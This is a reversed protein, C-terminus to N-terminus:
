EVLFVFRPVKPLNDDLDILLDNTGRLQITDAILGNAFTGPTGEIELQASPIYITGGLRWDNTGNIDAKTTNSRSQFIPVPIDALDAPVAPGNPYSIPTMGQLNFSGNGAIDINGNPGIFFMAGASGDLTGGNYKFEGDIYYLGPELVVNAKSNNIELGTYYGPQLTITENKNGKLKVKGHDPSPVNPEPLGALPDPVPDAGTFIEADTDVQGEFGGDLGGHVHLEAANLDPKGSHCAANAAGSNVVVAGDEVGMLTNGRLDLACSASPNLSIVGPGVDGGIMAIAHRQMDFTNLGFASGFITPAPGGLSGATRRATVRVANPLGSSIPTFTRSARRYRGIVIDGASANEDNRALQIADGAAANAAALNVAQTRAESRSRRAEMAGALSAADAGAGLQHGVFVAWGVDVALAVFAFMMIVTFVAWITAIGRRSAARGLRRGGRGAPRCPYSDRGLEPADHKM